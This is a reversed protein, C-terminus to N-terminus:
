MGPTKSPLKEPTVRTPAEKESAISETPKPKAKAGKKKAGKQVCYNLQLSM